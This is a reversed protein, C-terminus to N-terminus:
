LFILGLGIASLSFLVIAQDEIDDILQAASLIWVIGFVIRIM